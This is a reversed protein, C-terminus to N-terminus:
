KRAACLIQDRPTRGNNNQTVPFQWWEIEM